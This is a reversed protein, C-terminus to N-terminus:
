LTFCRLATCTSRPKIGPDSLDEPSPFPLGSWYRQRSFGMSLPARYAVTWPTASDSVVSRSFQVSSFASLRETMDLEKCGWPSSGALNMQGHFEGPLFIPTPQWQRRWLIKRVWPNSGPRRCQLHIRKGDSDGPFGGVIISPPFFIALLSM